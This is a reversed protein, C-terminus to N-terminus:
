LDCFFRLDYAEHGKEVFHSVFPAELVRNLIRLKVTRTNSGVNLMAMPLVQVAQGPIRKLGPLNLPPGGPGQVCKYSSKGGFM